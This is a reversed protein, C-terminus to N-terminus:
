GNVVEDGPAKLSEVFDEMRQIEEESMGTPHEWLVTSCNLGNHNLIGVYRWGDLLMRQAIKETPQDRCFDMALTLAPPQPAPECGVLVVALLLFMRM